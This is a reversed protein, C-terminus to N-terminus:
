KLTFSLSVKHFTLNQTGNMQLPKLHEYGKGELSKFRYPKLWVERPGTKCSFLEMPSTEGIRQM